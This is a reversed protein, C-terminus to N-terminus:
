FRRNKKIDEYIEEGKEKAKLREARIAEWRAERAAEREDQEKIFAQYSAFGDDVTDCLVTEYVCVYDLFEDVAEIRKALAEAEAENRFTGILVECEYDFAGIVVYAKKEEM